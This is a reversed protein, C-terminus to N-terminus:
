FECVICCSNKPFPPLSLKHIDADDLLHLDAMQGVGLEEVIDHAFVFLGHSALYDLLEGHVASRRTVGCHNTFQPRPM